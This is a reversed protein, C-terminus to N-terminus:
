PKPTYKTCVATTSSLACRWSGATIPRYRAPTGGKFHLECAEKSPIKDFTGVNEVIDARERYGDGCTIELWKTDFAAPFVVNIRSSADTVTRHPMELLTCGSDDCAWSGAATISGLAHIESAVCGTPVEAFVALGDVVKAQLHKGGDCDLAVVDVTPGVQIQLPAGAWAAAILAYTFM